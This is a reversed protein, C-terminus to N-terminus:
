IHMSSSASLSAMTSHTRHRGGERGVPYPSSAAAAAHCACRASGGAERRLRPGYKGSPRGPGARKRLPRVRSSPAAGKPDHVSVLLSSGGREHLQADAQTHGSGCTQVGEMQPQAEVRTHGGGGCVCVCVYGGWGGGPLDPMGRSSHRLEFTIVRETAPYLSWWKPSRRCSPSCACCAQSALGEAGCGEVGGASGGATPSRQAAAALQPAAGLQSGRDAQV